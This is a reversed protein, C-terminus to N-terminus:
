IVLVWCATVSWSLPECPVSSAASMAMHTTTAAMTASAMAVTQSPRSRGNPASRRAM